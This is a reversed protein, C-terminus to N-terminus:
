LKGYAAVDVIWTVGCSATIHATPYKSSVSADSSVAEAIVAAKAEGTAVVAIARCQNNLFTHTLTVRCPPPKPSDSVTGVLVDEGATGLWWDRGPFLSATHGDPGLGLLCCHMTTPLAQAYVRASDELSLATDVPHHTVAVGAPLKVTDVFSKHNSDPDDLPVHREDVYFINWASPMPMVVPLARAMLKTLSGGSVAINFAEGDLLTSAAASVFAALNAVVEETTSGVKFRNVPLSM